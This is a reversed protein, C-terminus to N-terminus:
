GFTCLFELSPKELELLVMLEHSGAATPNLLIGRNHTLLDINSETM